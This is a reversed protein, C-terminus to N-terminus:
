FRLRMLELVVRRGSATIAPPEVVIEGLFGVRDEDAPTVQLRGAAENTSRAGRYASIASVLATAGAVALGPVLAPRDTERSAVQGEPCTGDRPLTLCSVEVTEYLTGVGLAGVTVGLFLTGAVPRDTYYHGVGPLLFGLALARGPEYHVPPAELFRIADEVLARDSAEPRMELYTRFDRVAPMRRGRAGHALGRNYYADALASDAALAASFETAAEELSGDDLLDVGERFHSVADQDIAPGLPAQLEDLRARVEASEEGEPALALYRCHWRIASETEGLEAHAQARRNALEESVPDLETARRLLDRVSEPDGLMAAETASSALRRAQARDGEDPEDVAGPDWEPCEALPHALAENRM